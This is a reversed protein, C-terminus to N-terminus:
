NFNFKETRLAFSTPLNYLLIARSNGKRTCCPKNEGPSFGDKSWRKPMVMKPCGFIPLFYFRWWSSKGDQDNNVKGGGGGRGWFGGVWFICEKSFDGYRWWWIMEIVYWFWVFFPSWTFISVFQYKHNKAAVHLLTHKILQSFNILSNPWKKLNSQPSCNNFKEINSRVRVSCFKM